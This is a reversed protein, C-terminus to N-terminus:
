LFKGIVNQNFYNVSVFKLPRFIISAPQNTRRYLQILHPFIIMFASEPPIQCSVPAAKELADFLNKNPQVPRPHGSPVETQGLM